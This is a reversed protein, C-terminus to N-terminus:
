MPDTLNPVPSTLVDKDSSNETQWSKAIIKQNRWEEFPELLAPPYNGDGGYSESFDALSRSRLSPDRKTMDFVVLRSLPVEMGKPINVATITISNGAAETIISTGDYLVLEGAASTFVPYVGDNHKSGSVDIIQNTVFSFGNNSDAITDGSGSNDTFSIGGSTMNVDSHFRNNLENVIWDLASAFLMSILIRKSLDAQQILNAIREPNLAM